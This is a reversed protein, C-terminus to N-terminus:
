LNGDRLWYRYRYWSTLFRSVMLAVIGWWIVRLTTEGLLWGSSIAVAFIASFLMALALYGFDELGMLIGDWAFVMANLPQMLAVFLYIEGIALLVEADSTFLGPVIGQASLFLLMLLVGVAASLKLVRAGIEAALQADQRGRADAMLAQAAIALSDVILAMALWMQIAVQHAAIAESGLRTALSAAYTLTLLLALTRLSLISSSSLFKGLSKLTLRVLKIRRQAVPHRLLLILFALMGLVQSIVTAWAAGSVGWELGFLFLPDLILNILNIGLTLWLISRTDRHGRLIGHCATLILVAPAAWLRVRYYELAQVRVEGTAGMMDMILNEASILVAIALVGLILALSLAALSVRNADERDGQALARAVWPTTGYAFFNFVLFVLNFIAGAVGLAALPTEGLQGVMATDVLTVLPDSAMAGLAPIALALIESDVKKM